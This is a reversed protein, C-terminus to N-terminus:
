RGRREDRPTTRESSSGRRRYQIARRTGFFASALGAIVLVGGLAAPIPDGTEAISLWLLAVGGIVTLLGAGIWVAPGPTPQNQYDM